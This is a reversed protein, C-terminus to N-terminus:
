VRVFNNQFNLYKLHKSSGMHLIFSMLNSHHMICSVDLTALNPPLTYNIRLTPPELYFVSSQHSFDLDILNESMPLKAISVISVLVFYNFSINLIKLNLLEHFCGRSSNSKIAALNTHDMQLDTLNPLSLKGCFSDDLILLKPPNIHWGTMERFMFSLKLKELKTNQLGILAPSFDLINMGIVKSFDLSKLSLFHHFALPQVSCLNLARIRLEELSINRLYKFTDNTITNFTGIDDYIGLKRLKTFNMLQKSFEEGGPIDINLEELTQPLKHMMSAFDKLSLTMNMQYNHQISISKLHILDDFTNDPFSSENYVIRIDKLRIMELNVMNRLMSNQIVSINNSSLDLIKVNVCNSFSKNQLQAIYNLRLDISVAEVSIMDPINKLGIGSCDVM